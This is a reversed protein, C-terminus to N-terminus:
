HWNNQINLSVVFASSSDLLSIFNYLFFLWLWTRSNRFVASDSSALIVNFGTQLMKMVGLYICLAGYM